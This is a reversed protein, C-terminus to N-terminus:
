ASGPSTAEMGEIRVTIAAPAALHPDGNIDVTITLRPPQICGDPAGPWNSGQSEVEGNTGTATSYQVWWRSALSSTLNRREALFLHGFDGVKLILDKKPDGGEWRCYADLPLAHALDGDVRLRASLSAAVAGTNEVRLLLRNGERVIRLQVKSLHSIKAEDRQSRMDLWARYQAVFLALIALTWGVWPSLHNWPYTTTKDAPDPAILPLLAYAAVLISGTM